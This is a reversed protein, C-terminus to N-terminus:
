RRSQGAAFSNKTKLAGFCNTPKTVFRSRSSSSARSEELKVWDTVPNTAYLVLKGDFNEPGALDLVDAVATGQVALIVVDGFSAADSFSGVSATDGTEM